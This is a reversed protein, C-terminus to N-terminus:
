KAGQQADVIKKIADQHPKIDGSALMRKKLNDQFVDFVIQRKDALLREQYQSKKAAFDQESPPEKSAVQYLVQIGTWSFPGATAGVPQSFLKPDIDRLNGVSPLAGDHGLPASTKAELGVSKAAKKLDKKDKQENLAKLLDQAKAVAKEKSKDDIYDKKVQDKVESLEAPRAPLVDLLVPIGYGVSIQVPEGAKGKELGFVEQMLGDNAGIVPLNDGRAFAPPALVQGHVKDAIAAIDAPAKSLARAADETTDSLLKAAKPDLVVAAISSKVEEFTQLHPQDHSVGQIIHIGYMTQVPDSLQNPALSFAAKEFEPVTQKRTVNTLLGGSDKTGTDDSNEKALKAFDAGAKLKKLLDEAKKKAAELQAPNKPDAKLLIHRVTVREPIRYSELHDQYYKKLETDSATLTAKILNKDIILIKAVRKEPIQYKQQNTKFYDALAADPASIDKKLDLPNIAVYDLVVKEGDSVFAHHVEEPTVTVADCVFQRLKDVIMAQRYREEFQGVTMGFRQSVLDEYQQEGIFAGNPYINPDKRLQALLESEDVKLGLREAEAISAKELILENVIQNTYFPMMQPPIKNRTGVQQLSQQVDYETIMNGSVEAVVPNGSLDNIDGGLGPILTIVMTVVVLFLVVGFIVKVLTQRQRFINLM